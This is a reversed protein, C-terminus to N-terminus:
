ETLMKGSLTFDAIRNLGIAGTIWDNWTTSTCRTHGSQCASQSGATNPITRHRKAQAQEALM